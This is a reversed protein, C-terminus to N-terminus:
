TSIGPTSYQPRMAHFLFQEPTLADEFRDLLRRWGLYNSLYKTSVGHFRSMWTKLTSDYRNVSQVHAEGDGGHGHYSAVFYQQQVGLKAAVTWYAANGDTTLTALPGLAPRLAETLSVAKTDPLVADFVQRTGRQQAVVVAVKESGEGTKEIIGGRKKSTRPLGSRQGKYSVSFFTEDAEVIGSMASPKQKNPLALAKHRLHFASTVSCGLREATKELSLGDAMCAALTILKTKDRLRNFPTGTFPSFTKECSTCKYRQVGRAKGRKVTEPSSCHPCGSREAMLGATVRDLTRGDKKLRLKEAMDAVQEESLEEIGAVFIRYAASDM